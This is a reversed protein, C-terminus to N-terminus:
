QDTAAHRQEEELDHIRVLLDLNEGILAGVRAQLNEIVIRARRLEGEIDHNTNTMTM